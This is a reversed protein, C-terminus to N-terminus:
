NFFRRFGMWIMMVVLALFLVIQPNGIEERSINESLSSEEKKEMIISEEKMELRKIKGKLQNILKKQESIKQRFKLQRQVVNKKSKKKLNTDKGSPIQILNSISTELKATGFSTLSQFFIPPNKKVPSKEEAKKKGISLALLDFEEFEIIKKPSKNKKPPTKVSLNFLNIDMQISEQEEKEEEGNQIKIPSSKHSLQSQSQSEFKIQVDEQDFHISELIKKSEAESESQVSFNLKKKLEKKEGEEIFKKSQSLKTNATSRIATFESMNCCELSNIIQDKIDEFIPDEIMILKIKEPISNLKEIKPQSKKLSVMLELMNNLIVKFFGQLKNDIVRHIERGLYDNNKNPHDIFIKPKEASSFFIFCWYLM